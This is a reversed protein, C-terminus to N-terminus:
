LPTPDEIGQRAKFAKINALQKASVKDHCKMDKIGCNDIGSCCGNM